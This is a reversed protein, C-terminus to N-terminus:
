NAKLELILKGDSLEYSSIPFGIPIIKEYGTKKGIAKIEISNELQHISVHEISEVGPVEIEYIIRNSLRRISTKPEKKELKSFTNKNEQSFAINKPTKKSSEKQITRQPTNQMSNELPHQTIKINEPNVRKGNIYLEFNPKIGPNKQNQISTKKQMEMSKQMEKEMMRIANTLMKNMMKGGFGEFIDPMPQENSIDSKGLMGWDEKKSNKKPSNFNMGCNPCFSYDKSVKKNCNPCSKKNFM